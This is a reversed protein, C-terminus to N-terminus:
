NVKKKKAKQSEKTFIPVGDPLGLKSVQKYPIGVAAQGVL